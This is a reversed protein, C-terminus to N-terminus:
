QLTSAFTQIWTDYILQVSQPPHLDIGPPTPSSHNPLFRRTQNRMIPVRRWAPVLSMCTSTPSAAKASIRDPQRTKQSLLSAAMSLKSGDLDSWYPPIM